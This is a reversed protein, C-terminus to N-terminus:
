DNPHSDHLDIQFIISSNGLLHLNTKAPCSQKKGKERSQKAAIQLPSNDHKNKGGNETRKRQSDSSPDTSDYEGKHVVFNINFFHQLLAITRGRLICSYNELTMANDGSYGLKIKTLNDWAQIKFSDIM